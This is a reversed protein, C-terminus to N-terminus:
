ISVNKQLITTEPFLIHDTDLLFIADTLHDTHEILLINPDLIENITIMDLVHVIKPLAETMNIEMEHHLVIDIRQLTIKPIFFTEHDSMMEKQELMPSQVFTCFNKHLNQDHLVKEKIIM